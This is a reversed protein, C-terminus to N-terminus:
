NSTTLVFPVSSQGGGAWNSLAVQTANINLNGGKDWTKTSDASGKAETKLKKEDADIQAFSTIGILIMM